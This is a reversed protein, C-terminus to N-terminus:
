AGRRAHRASWAQTVARKRDSALDEPGAHRGFLDAGIEFASRAPGPEPQALYAQLASRIVDSTSRGTRQARQRLQEELTAELKFTVTVTRIADSYM